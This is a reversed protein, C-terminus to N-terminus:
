SLEGIAMLDNATMDTAHAAASTCVDHANVEGDVDERARTLEREDVINSARGFSLESASGIGDSCNM